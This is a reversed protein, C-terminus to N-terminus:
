KYKRISWVVVGILETWEPIVIPDYDDNAPVLYIVGWKREYFKLTVDGDISAIVIDGNRASLSKDVVVIDGDIIGANKMSAWKVNVLFTSSPHNILYGDIDMNKDPESDPTFPLGARVSSFLPYGTLNETPLYQKWQIVLFGNNVLRTLFVKASARNAYSYMERIQDLTSIIGGGRIFQRLTEIKEQYRKDIRMTKM